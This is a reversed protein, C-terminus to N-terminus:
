RYHVTKTMNYQFKDRQVYNTQIRRLLGYWIMISAPKREPDGDVALTRRSKEM